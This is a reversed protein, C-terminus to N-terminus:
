TRMEELISAIDFHRGTKTVENVGWIGSSGDHWLVYVQTDGILQTVVGKEKSHIGNVGDGVEIKDDKATWYNKYNNSCESCPYTLEKNADYKCGECGRESQAKGDELGRQYADHIKEEKFLMGKNFADAKAQEIAESSEAEKKGEEFGANYADDQLIGFHENVYDANLEEIEDGKLVITQVQIGDFYTYHVSGATGLMGVTKPIDIIYKSM